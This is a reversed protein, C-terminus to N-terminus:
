IAALITNKRFIFSISIRICRQKGGHNVGLDFFDNSYYVSGFDGISFM